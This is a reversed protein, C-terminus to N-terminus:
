KNSARSNILEAVHKAKERLNNEDDAYSFLYASIDEDFLRGHALMKKRISWTTRDLYRLIEWTPSILNLNSITRMTLSLTHSGPLNSVTHWWYNPMFLLDGPEVIAYFKPVYRYLPFGRRAIVDNEERGDLRSAHYTSHDKVVPYMGPTFLPHVFRWRKRGTIQVFYNDGPETHWLTHSREPQLFLQQSIVKGIPYRRRLWTNKKAEYGSLRQIHNIDCYQKILVDNDIHMIDEIAKASLNGNKRISDILEKVTHYRMKYFNNMPVPQGNDEFYLNPEENIPVEINGYREEFFELNFMSMAPWNRAGGKILVPRLRKQITPMLEPADESLIERIPIDETQEPLNQECFKLLSSMGTEYLTRGLSPQYQHSEAKEGELKGFKALYAFGLWYKLRASLPLTPLPFEEWNTDAKNWNADAQNIVVM